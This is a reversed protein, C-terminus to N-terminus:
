FLISYNSLCLRTALSSHFILGVFGEKQPLFCTCSTPGSVGGVKPRAICIPMALAQLEGRCKQLLRFLCFVSCFRRSRESDRRMMALCFIVVEGFWRSSGWIRCYWIWAHPMVPGVFVFVALVHWFWGFCFGDSVIIEKSRWPELSPWLSYGGASTWTKLAQAICKCYEDSAWEM